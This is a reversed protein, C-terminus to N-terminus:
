CFSRRDTAFAGSNPPDAISAQYGTIGLASWIAAQFTVTWWEPAAQLPQFMATILKVSTGPPALGFVEAVGACMVLVFPSTAVILGYEDKWTNNENKKSLLALQGAFEESNAAAQTLIEERKDKAEQEKRIREQRNAYLDTFPKVLGMAIDKLGM